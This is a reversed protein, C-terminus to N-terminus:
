ANPDHVGKVLLMPQYNIVYEALDINNMNQAWQVATHGADNTLGCDAGYDILLEIILKIWKTHEQTYTNKCVHILATNNTIGHRNCNAGSELLFKITEFCKIINPGRHNGAFLTTSLLADNSNHNLVHIDAGHKVLLRVFEIKADRAVRHLLTDGQGGGFKININISPNQELLAGFEDIDNANMLEYLQNIIDPVNDM